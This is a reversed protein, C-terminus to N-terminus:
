TGCRSRPRGRGWVFDATGGSVGSVLLDLEEASEPDLVVLDPAYGLTQLTTIASRISIVHNAGPTENDSDSVAAIAMEDLGRNVAHVLDRNIVRDVAPQEL